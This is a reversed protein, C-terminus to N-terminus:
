KWYFSWEQSAASLPVYVTSGDSGVTKRAVRVNWFYIRGTEQDARLYLATDVFWYTAQVCAPNSAPLGRETWRLTVLYCEDPKLTHDSSWVLKINAKEADSFPATDGPQLLVPPSIAPTATPTPTATQKPQPTWTPWARTPTATPTETPTPTPTETPTPTQTPTPTLSPTLTPTPTNSPTPTISPTLTPTASPVVVVKPMGEAVEQVAEVVVSPQFTDLGQRLWYGGWLGFVLGAVVATSILVLRLWDHQLPEGCAPCVVLSRNSVTGCHRCRVQQPGRQPKGCHPCVLQATFIEAGCRSCKKL